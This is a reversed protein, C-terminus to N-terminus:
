VLLFTLSHYSVKWFRVFFFGRYKLCSRSLTQTRMQFAETLANNTRGIQWWNLGSSLRTDWLLLFFFLDLAPCAAVTANQPRLQGSGPSVCGGPASGIETGYFAPELLFKDSMQDNSGREHCFFVMWQQTWLSLLVHLCVNEINQAQIASSYANLEWNSLGQVGDAAHRIVHWRLQSSHISNCIAYNYKTLKVKIM